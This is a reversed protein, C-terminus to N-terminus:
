SGGDLTFDVNAGESRGIWNRQMTRVREPWGEMRDLGQLLEDAYDTIRLFWQELERQEVPTSEHRWCCGEVVQENALVTACEPCWNVLSNKRYALGKELMRLFFWQNWRYYEPTCTNIERAWDYAFGMRLLQQKMHAVNSMTWRAPHLGRQIAANEAPLGFADWGMTHMVDYGRMWMYRALTDGISYNRVHGMHLVGSPYPLMELVYYRPKTSDRAAAYLAPESQWREFWNTEIRQADYRDDTQERNRGQKTVATDAEQAM